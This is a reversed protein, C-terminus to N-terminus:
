SDFDNLDVSKESDVSLKLCCMGKWAATRYANLLFLYCPIMKGAQAM